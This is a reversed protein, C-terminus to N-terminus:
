DERVRYSFVLAVFGFIILIQYIEPIAFTKSMFGGFFPVVFSGFMGFSNLLGLGRGREHNKTVDSVIGNTSPYFFAFLPVAFLITLIMVSSIKGMSFWLVSYSITTLIIIKKKESMKKKEDVFFFILAFILYIFGCSYFFVDVGLSYLFGGIAAGLMWGGSAFTNYEGLLRGKSKDDKETVLTPVLIYTSFFISQISRAAILATPSLRSFSFFMLAGLIGSYSLVRKREGIRDTLVGWFFSPLVIILSPVANIM